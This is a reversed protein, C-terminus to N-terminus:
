SACAVASAQPSTDTTWSWATSTAEGPARRASWGGSRSGSAPSSSAAVALRLNVVKNRQLAPDVGALQRFLPTAHDAVPHGYGDVSAIDLDLDAGCTRWQLERRARRVSPGALSRTMRGAAGGDM